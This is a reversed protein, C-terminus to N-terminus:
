CSFARVIHDPWGQLEKDCRPQIVEIAIPPIVKAINKEFYAKMMDIHQQTLNNIDQPRLDTLLPDNVSMENGSISALETRNAPRWDEVEFLIEEKAVSVAWVSIGTKVFSYKEGPVDKVFLFNSKNSYLSGNRAFYIMVDVGNQLGLASIQKAILQKDAKNGNFTGFNQVKYKGQLSNSALNAIYDDVAWDHLQLESIHRSPNHAPGILIIDVAKGVGSIVGVKKIKVLDEEPIGHAIDDSICGTLSLMILLASYLTRFKIKRFAIM